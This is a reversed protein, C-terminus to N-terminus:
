GLARIAALTAETESLETELATVRAIDGLAEASTMLQSLHAVRRELMEIITAITM